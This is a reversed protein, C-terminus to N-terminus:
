YVKGIIIGSRRLQFKSVIEKGIIIGSRRLQFKFVIEKEIIIGSRRLQFLFPIRSCKKRNFYDKIERKEVGL